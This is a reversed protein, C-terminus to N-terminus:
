VFEVKSNVSSKSYDNAVVFNWYKKTIHSNDLFEFVMNLLKLENETVNGIDLEGNVEENVSNYLYVKM